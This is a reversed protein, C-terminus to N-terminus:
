RARPVGIVTGPPDETVVPFSGPMLPNVGTVAGGSRARGVVIVPGSPSITVPGLPWGTTTGSPESILEFPVTVPGSPCSTFPASPFGILTGLPEIGLPLETPIGPLLIPPPLEPRPLERPPPLEDPGPSLSRM